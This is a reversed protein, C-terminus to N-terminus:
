PSGSFYKNAIAAALILLFAVIGSMSGSLVWARMGSIRREVALDQEGIRDHAEQAFEMAAKVGARSAMAENNLDHRSKSATDDIRTHIREFASEVKTTLSALTAKIETTDQNIRSFGTEDSRFHARMEAELIGIREEAGTSPNM